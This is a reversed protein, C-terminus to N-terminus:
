QCASRGAPVLYMGTTRYIADPIVDYILHLGVPVGPSVGPIPLPQPNFLDVHSQVQGNSQDITVHTSCTINFDRLNTMGKEMLNYKDVTTPCVYNGNVNMCGGSGNNAAGGCPDALFYYCNGSTSSGLSGLAFAAPVCGPCGGDYRPGSPGFTVGLWDITTGTFNTCIQPGGDLSVVSCGSSAWPVGGGSAFCTTKDNDLCLGLPDTMALPNNIVYTYRNWSQPNAPIAAGLGLPDPSIWRGVISLERNPTDWMEPYDDNGHTGAFGTYQSGGSGFSDYLEGYPSYAQDRTIVHSSLNSTIRASGLWDKHIYNYAAGNVGILVTGGSPAPWFAFVPTTGSMWATGGSPTIWQEYWTTGQSREVIRGFADYTVCMGSSGCNPTGSSATWKLKSFVDWGYVNNGDNTVNGDSDYTCGSCAYHNTSSSYGPIWTTGTRGSIVSKSLNGYPDYGFTQGWGGSGCDVGVLRGLDDYGTGTAVTPNFNCTQTGGSNFGDTIGLQNLTGNANWNLNGTMSAPTNGVTFAYQTMRGTKTDFTYSDKDPTTGTLSVVAPNAAPFFTAGTVLKQNTTTDTLANWRGEGDIGWTMTYLSPSALQLTNVMGNGYFTAKSDYYQGSHPTKEWMELTNGNGDYSFWEDTVPTIPTSCSDTEGEVLRGALNTFTSGSPEAVVGNSVKDYRFRKCVNTSSQASNGVDTLRHMADYSYCLKNGNADTKSVLDGASTSSGGSCYTATISDYNYTTTGSEPNTESTLRGVGDYTYTRTQQGSSPTQVCDVSLPQTTNQCVGLVHGVADYKYRTWYGTQSTSQSCTVVGSLSTSMECVSTLRGLGDYELQRKKQNEGSPAPGLAVVVDNGSYTYTNTSGGGDTISIPRGIADNQTTTVGTGSPASQAASGSYPVSQTACAGVSFPATKTCGGSSSGWGYSTQISDFTSLGQGQRQQSFIARGLGDTTALSDVTSVAGNFNVASEFTTPTYTFNTTNTLADVASLARYLPDASSGNTYNTTTIQSNADTFSTRVGGNCDWAESGSLSVNTASMSWTTPLMGNCVFNSLTTTLNGNVDTASTLVGAAASGGGYGMSTTLWNSGSVWKAVSTAHGTNSYTIKTQAVVNGSGDEVKIYCPTNYIYGASYATCSTGNWSQGYYMLTQSTTAGGWDGRILATVNNYSDYQTEVLNGASPNTSNFNTYVDTQTIPLLVYSPTACNTFNKNYCTMVIKLPTGTASGQYYAAQTQYEGSFSYVTQNGAPDTETVTFNLTTSTKSNNYTWTSSTGNKDNVTVKIQPIVLTKCDFGNQGQTDGNQAYAYSISGGSGYTISAIRGTTYGSGYGPTQEYGFTTVSGDPSTISSLLYVGSSSYDPLGGHASCNFNSQLTWSKWSEVYDQTKGSGDTYTVDTLLYPSSSQFHESVFPQGLSDTFTAIPFGSTTITAGDPDALGTSNNYSNGSSDYIASPVIKTYSTQSPIVTFASGDQTTISAPIAHCGGTDTIVGGLSHPTGLGDYLYYGSYYDVYGGNCGAQHPTVHTYTVSAGFLLNSFQGTFGTVVALNPSGAYVAFNGSFVYSAPIKGGKSRTPIIQTISSSALDIGFKRTSFPIIGTTTDQSWCCNVMLIVCILIYLCNKEVSTRIRYRVCEPLSSNVVDPPLGSNVAFSHAPRVLSLCNFALSGLHTM